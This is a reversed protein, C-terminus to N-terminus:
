YDKKADIGSMQTIIDKITSSESFVHVVSSIVTHHVHSLKSNLMVLVNYNANVSIRDQVVLPIVQWASIVGVVSKFLVCKQHYELLCLTIEGELFGKVANLMYDPVILYYNNPPQIKLYYDSAIKEELRVFGEQLVFERQEDARDLIIKSLKVPAGPTDETEVIILMEATDSTTPRWLFKLALINALHARAEIYIEINSAQQLLISLGNLKKNEGHFVVSDESFTASLQKNTYSYVVPGNNIDM